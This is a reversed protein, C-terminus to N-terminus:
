PLKNLIEQILNIFFSCIAKTIKLGSYFLALFFRVISVLLGGIANIFLQFTPNM